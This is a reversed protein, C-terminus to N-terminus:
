LSLVERLRDRWDLAIASSNDVDHAMLEDLGDVTLLSRDLFAVLASACKPGFSRAVSGQVLMPLLGVAHEGFQTDITALVAALQPAVWSGSRVTTWIADILPAQPPLVAAATGGVLHPRWGIGALLAKVEDTPTSAQECCGRLTHVADAGNQGLGLLALYFGGTRGPSPDFMPWFSPFSRSRDYRGRNHGSLGEVRSPRAQLGDKCLDVPSQGTQLDTRLM